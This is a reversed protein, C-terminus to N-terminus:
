KKYNIWMYTFVLQIVQRQHQITTCNVFQDLFYAVVNKKM